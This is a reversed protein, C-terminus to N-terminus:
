AAASTQWYGEQQLTDRTHMGAITGEQSLQMM